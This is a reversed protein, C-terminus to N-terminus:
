ISLSRLDPDPASYRWLDEFLEQQSQVAVRSNPYYFAETESDGPKFLLGDRDRIVATQGRWEPHHELRHIIVRSPIRRALQLLRHGQAVLGRPDQILIRIETQRSDRALDGLAQTLETNDFVSRDLRPSLIWLHRLASRALEVVLEDFPFPYDVGTPTDDSSM